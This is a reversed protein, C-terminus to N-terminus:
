VCLVRLPRLTLYLRTSLIKCTPAIIVKYFVCLYLIPKIFKPKDATTRNKEATEAFFEAVEATLCRRGALQLFKM